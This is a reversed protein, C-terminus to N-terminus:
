LQLNNLESLNDDPDYKLAERSRKRGIKAVLADFKEISIKFLCHPNSCMRVADLMGAEHLRTECRPCKDEILLDWKYGSSM